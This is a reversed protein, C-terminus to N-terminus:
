QTKKLWKNKIYFKKWYNIRNEYDYYDKPTGWCIYNVDIFKVKLGEDICYQLVKDVYFKNDLTDNKWIMKELNRLFDNSKKFWFMGTTAHDNM